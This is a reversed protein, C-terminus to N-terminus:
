QFVYSNVIILMFIYIYIYVNINVNKSDDKRVPTRCYKESVKTNSKGLVM